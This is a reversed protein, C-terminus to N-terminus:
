EEITIALHGGIPRRVQGNVVVHLLVPGQPLGSPVTVDLQYLGVFGPAAGAYTITGKADDFWVEVSAELAAAEHAIRGAPVNPIGPGFGIGYLTIVDGPKPLRSSVTREPPLVYTGDPLVSVVYQFGDRSTLEFALLGPDIANVTVTYANTTRGSNTVVVDAAGPAISFPIQANIQNPSVYSIYAPQGNISVTV